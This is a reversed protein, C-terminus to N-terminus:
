KAIRQMLEIRNGDPDRIWAQVNGDKGLRPGSEPKIGHRALHAVVPDMETVELCLHRYGARGAPLDGPVDTAGPFLEVYGDGLKVYVLMLQGDDRNLRFYETGGLVTQFFHLSKELDTVSYAVHYIGKIM